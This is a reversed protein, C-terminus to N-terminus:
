RRRPRRWRSSGAARRGPPSAPAARCTGAAPHTHARPRSPGSCARRELAPRAAHVGRGRGAGAPLLAHTACRAQCGGRPLADAWSGAAAAACTVPPLGVVRRRAPHEVRLACRQVRQLHQLRQRVVHRQVQRVLREAAHDGAHLVPPPLPLHAAPAAPRGPAMSTGGAPGARRGRRAGSASSGAACGSSTALSSGSAGGRDRGRLHHPRQVAALVQRRPGLPHLQLHPAHAHRLVRGAPAAVPKQPVADEPAVRRAHDHTPAAHVDRGIASARKRPPAIAAQTVGAITVQPRYVRSAPHTEELQIEPRRQSALAM